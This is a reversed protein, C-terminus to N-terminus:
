KKKMLKYTKLISNSVNFYSEVYNLQEDECLKENKINPIITLFEVYYHKNYEFNDDYKEFEEINYYDKNFYISSQIYNYVVYDTPFGTTIMHFKLELFEFISKLNNSIITKHGGINYILGDKTYNLNFSKSIMIDLLVPLINWCYYYFKYNWNVNDSKVFNILVGDIKAVIINNKEILSDCIFIERIEFINVVDPIIVHIMNFEIKDIHCYPIDHKIDNEELTTSIKKLFQIFEQKELIKM